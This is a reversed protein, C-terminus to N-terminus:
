GECEFEAEPLPGTALAGRPRTGQSSARAKLSARWVARAPTRIVQRPGRRLSPRESLQQQRGIQLLKTAQDVLSVFYDSPVPLQRVVRNAYTVLAVSINMEMKVEPINDFGMIVPYQYSIDKNRGVFFEWRLDPHRSIIMEGIFVSLDHIVSYWFNELRNPNRECTEVNEVFWDNVNQLDKENFEVSLGNRGLLGKLEV